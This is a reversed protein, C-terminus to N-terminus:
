APDYSAVIRQMDDIFVTPWRDASRLAAFIETAIEQQRHQEADTDRVEILAPYSSALPIDQGTPGAIDDDDFEHSGLYVAATGVRIYPDSGEERTFKQGLTQELLRVLDGDDASSGVFIFTQRSM